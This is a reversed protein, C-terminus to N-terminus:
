FGSQRFPCSANCNDCSPIGAPTVRLKYNEMKPCNPKEGKNGEGRYYVNGLCSNVPRWGEGGSIIPDVEIILESM